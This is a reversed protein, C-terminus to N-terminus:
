VQASVLGSRQLLLTNTAHVVVHEAVVVLSGNADSGVWTPPLLHLPVLQRVSSAVIEHQTM